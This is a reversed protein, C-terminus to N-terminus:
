RARPRGSRAEVPTSRPDAANSPWGREISRTLAPVVILRRFPKIAAMYAAGLLGNPKVLVAMQGRYGGPGDPVWSLHMVTHVTRNAMEAAWEDELQYLPTFPSLDPGTPADRLDSPLRERLSPVRAGVGDEPRDWRLLAGIRWRAEWLGRVLLPADDPFNGSFIQSVLRPLEHPGGPTALAWVDEVEFDPTFEHIRWSRSTHATNPLRM